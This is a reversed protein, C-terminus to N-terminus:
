KLCKRAENIQTKSYGQLRAWAYAVYRGHEAVKSRVDECTVGIPLKPASGQALAAAAFIVFLAVLAAQALVVRDDRNM